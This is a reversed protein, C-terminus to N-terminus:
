WWGLFTGLGILIILLLIIWLFYSYDKEQKM